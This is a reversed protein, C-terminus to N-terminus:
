EDDEKFWNKAIYRREYDRDYGIAVYADLIKELLQAARTPNTRYLSVYQEKYQGAIASAINGKKTGHDLLEQAAKQM